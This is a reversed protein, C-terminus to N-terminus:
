PTGGQNISLAATWALGAALRAAAELHLGAHPYTRAVITTIAHAVDAPIEAAPAIPAASVGEM